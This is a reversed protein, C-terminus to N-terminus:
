ITSNDNVKNFIHLAIKMKFKAYEWKPVVWLSNEEICEAFDEEPSTKAYETVYSNWDFVMWHKKLYRVISSDYKSILVWLKRYSEPATHYIHHSYEHLLTAEQRKRPVKFFNSTIIIRKFQKIYSAWVWKKGWMFVDSYVVPLGNYETINMQYHYWGYVNKYTYEQIKICDDEWKGDGNGTNQDLILIKNEWPYSKLVIWVHWYTWTDFFIVDWAVPVQDPKTVDNVIKDWTDAPFTNSKNFWGSRASGGFTGLKIQFCKSICDKVLDVCQSGYVGDYDILKGKVAQAYTSTNM